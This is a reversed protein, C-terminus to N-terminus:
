WRGKGGHFGMEVTQTIKKKQLHNGSSWVRMSQRSVSQHSILNQNLNETACYKTRKFFLQIYLYIFLRIDSMCPVELVPIYRLAIIYQSTYSAALYYFPDKPMCVWHISIQRHLQEFERSGERRAIRVALSRMHVHLARILHCLSIEVKAQRM